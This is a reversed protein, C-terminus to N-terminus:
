NEKIAELQGQQLFMTTTPYAIEAGNKEVIQAIKLLVEQKVEHFYIWDTTKTFTYVFFDVSSENFANFNVIMTQTADIEDHSKLMAKVDQVIRDMQPIDDYRLGITEYIRRHSMRSPNEVIISAFISNPIYLPRRDFTRITSLRWGISEVTGEINRDPSRIWDGVTFPRDLYIVLGGFFNALLDKAAFGIAIGGVGGFALVGSISFGLTQLVVLITTIFIATRLLKGIAHITTRDISEGKQLRQQITADEFRRVFSILGWAFMAVILVHRISDISQFIIADTKSGAIEAAYSVGLILLTYRLPKRISHILADDWPTQSAKAKLALRSFIRRAVFAAILVVLVVGFVEYVWGEILDNVFLYKIKEIIEEM